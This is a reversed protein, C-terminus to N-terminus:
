RYCITVNCEDIWILVSIETAHTGLLLAIILLITQPSSMHYPILKSLLPTDQISFWCGLIYSMQFMNVSM